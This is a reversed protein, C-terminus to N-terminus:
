FFFISFSFHRIRESRAPSPGSPRTPGIRVWARSNRNGRRYGFGGEKGEGLGRGREIKRGIEGGTAPRRVRNRDARRERLVTMGRAIPRTGGIECHWNEAKGVSVSRERLDTVWEQLSIQYRLASERSRYRENGNERARLGTVADLKGLGAAEFEAAEVVVDSKFVMSPYYNPSLNKRNKM